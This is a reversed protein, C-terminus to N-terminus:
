RASDRLKAGDKAWTGLSQGLDMLARARQLNTREYREVIAASKQGTYLRVEETTLPRKWPWDGALMRTLAVNKLGGKYIRVGLNRFCWVALMGASGSESITWRDRERQSPKGDKTRQPRPPVFLPARKPRGEVLPRLLDVHFPFLPHKIPDGHKRDIEITGAKLDVHEVNRRCATIPRWGYIAICSFLALQGHRRARAMAALVQRDTLLAGTGRESPPAKLAEDVQPEFPTGHKGRAWRLIGRLAAATRVHRGRLAKAMDPTIDGPRAARDPLKWDAAVAQVRKLVDDLYAQAGPRAMRKADDMRDLRWEAALGAITLPEVPKAGAVARKKRPQRSNFEAAAADAEGRSGYPGAYPRSGDPLRWRVLFGHPHKEVWAM